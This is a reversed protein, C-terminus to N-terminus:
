SIFRLMGSQGVSVLNVCSANYPGTLKKSGGLSYSSQGSTHGSDTSTDKLASLCVLVVGIKLCTVLPPCFDDLNLNPGSLRTHSM